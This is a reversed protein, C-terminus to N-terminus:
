LGLNIDNYFKNKENVTLKSQSYDGNVVVLDLNRLYERVCEMKVATIISSSKFFSQVIGEIVEETLKM